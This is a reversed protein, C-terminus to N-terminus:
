LNISDGIALVPPIYKISVMPGPYITTGVSVYSSQGLRFRVSGPTLREDLQPTIDFLLADVTVVEEGPDVGQSAPRYQCQYAQNPNSEVPADDEDYGVLSVTCHGLGGAGIPSLSCSKVYIPTWVVAM